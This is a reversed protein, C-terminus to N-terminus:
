SDTPTHKRSLIVNQRRTTTQPKGVGEPRTSHKGIGGMMTFKLFGMLSQRGSIEMGEFQNRKGQKTKFTLKSAGEMMKCGSKKTFVRWVKRRRPVQEYGKRGM